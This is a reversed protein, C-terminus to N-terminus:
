ETRKNRRQTRRCKNLPAYEYKKKSLDINKFNKSLDISEINLQKIKDKHKETNKTILFMNNFINTINNNNEERLLPRNTSPGKM